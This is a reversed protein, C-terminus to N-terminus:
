KFDIEYEASFGLREFLLLSDPTGRLISKIILQCSVTAPRWPFFDWVLDTLILVFSIRSNLIIHTEDHKFISTFLNLYRAHRMSPLSCFSWFFIWGIVLLNIRYDATYIRSYNDPQELFWVMYARSLMPLVRELLRPFWTPESCRTLVSQNPARSIHLFMGISAMGKLLGNGRRFKRGPFIDWAVVVRCLYARDWFGVWRPRTASRIGRGAWLPRWGHNIM